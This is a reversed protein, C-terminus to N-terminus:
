VSRKRGAPGGAAALQRFLDAVPQGRDDGRAQQELREERLQRPADLAPDLAGLAQERHDRARGLPEIRPDCRGVVLLNEEEQESHEVDPRQRGRAELHPVLRWAAEM